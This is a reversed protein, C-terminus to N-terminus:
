ISGSWIRTGPRWQSQPAVEHRARHQRADCVEDVVEPCHEFYMWQLHFMEFTLSFHGNHHDLPWRARRRFQRDSNSDQQLRCTKVNFHQKFLGLIFMFLPRPEGMKLLSLKLSIRETCKRFTSKRRIWDVKISCKNATLQTYFPCVNLFLPRFHGM